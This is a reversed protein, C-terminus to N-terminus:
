PSHNEVATKLNQLISEYGPGKIKDMFIGSLKKLPNWGLDTNVNWTLQTNGTGNPVLIYQYTGTIKNKESLLIKINDAHSNLLTFSLEKNDENTLVAFSTDINQTIIVKIDKNQFLPHWNKWNEFDNIQGEVKKENANILVSRSVTISSPLFFTVVFLVALLLGFAIIFLKISRM